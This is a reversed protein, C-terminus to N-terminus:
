DDFDNKQLTPLGQFGHRREPVLVRAAVLGSALVLPRGAVRASAHQYM